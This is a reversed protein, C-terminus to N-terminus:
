RQVNGESVQGEVIDVDEEHMPGPGRSRVPLGKPNMFRGGKHLGPLLHLAEYTWLAPSDSNTVEGLLRQAHQKLVSSNHRGHILNLKVGEIGTEIKNWVALRFSDM